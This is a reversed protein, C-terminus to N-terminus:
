RAVGERGRGCAPRRPPGTRRKRPCNARAGHGRSRARAGSPSVFHRRAHGFIDQKALVGDNGSLEMAKAWLPKDITGAGFERAAEALYDAPDDAARERAADAVQARLGAEVTGIEVVEPPAEAIRLLEAKVVASHTARHADAAPAANPSSPGGERAPVERQLDPEDTLALETAKTGSAYGSM